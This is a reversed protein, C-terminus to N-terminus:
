KSRVVGKELITLGSSFPFHQIVWEGCVLHHYRNEDLRIELFEEIARIVGRDNEGVTGSNGM